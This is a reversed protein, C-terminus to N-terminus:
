GIRGKCAPRNLEDTYRLFQWKQVEGIRRSTESRDDCRGANRRVRPLNVVGHRGSDASHDQHRARGAATRVGNLDRYIRALDYQRHRREEGGGVEKLFQFPEDQAAKM